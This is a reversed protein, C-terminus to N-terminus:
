CYVSFFHIDLETLLYEQMIIFFSSHGVLVDFGKVLLRLLFFEIILIEDEEEPMSELAFIRLNIVSKDAAIQFINFLLDELLDVDLSQSGVLAFLNLCDLFNNFVSIYIDELASMETNDWGVLLAKLSFALLTTNIAILKGKVISAHYYVGAHTWVALEIQLWQLCFLEAVM